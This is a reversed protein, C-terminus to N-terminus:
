TEQSIMGSIMTARIRKEYQHLSILCFLSQMLRIDLPLVQIEATQILLTKWGVEEILPDPDRLVQDTVGLYVLISILSCVAMALVCRVRNIYLADASRKKCTM